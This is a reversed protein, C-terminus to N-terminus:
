NAVFQMIRMAHGASRTQSAIRLTLTHAGPQLNEAFMVTRPYHLGKSFEHFLNVARPSGGDLRAEVIGADPGAVVYAGVATGTFRLTAEAGPATACLMPVSTFRERKAGPLKSWDPIGWTWGQKVRAEQPDIFRGHSYNLPDLPAPLVAMPKPPVRLPAAWARNFLAEVMRACLTNGVPGPHVGGYQAWTLRGATIEDAVERAVNVTSLAYHEAVAQHAAITLPVRGAQSTALMEENVFFLVVLDLRPNQRRAHRVICELGRICEARTHHADQDDNVAFEVFLLDVPGERLVDHELRFAGTTSCTSAIGANTFHFRTEPFRQRLWACVRPRYGEMETISGGMFVVHGTKHREFQLRARNLDGRWQVTTGFPLTAAFGPGFVLPSVSLIFVALWLRAAAHPPFPRAGRVPGRRAAGLGARVAATKM